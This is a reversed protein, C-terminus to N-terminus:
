YRKLQKLLKRASRTNLIDKKEIWGRRAIDIGFQMNKFHNVSHSDTSIVLKVGMDKAMRVHIDDLDMREPQANIELACGNNKAAEMIKELDIEYPDRRGILRATPHAFINFYPNSMARLIRETQKKRSLDFKYHVSCVTLDLEKLIDDPLDLSGDELIDVEISKLIRFNKLKENLKDVAKIQQSLRKKDFGKAVTLHKSHDTIAIYEYGFEQAAKVMNDLSHQGDTAKTHCHLDGRVDNLTILKPLKDELAAEIEGRNERLEPEIYPLGVTAYVEKENKGAIRKAGKFVGYENIKLKKKVAMKRITITHSKSGTFYHLAAGYSVNPVVRLDVQIGCRLFVTSRTTGQSAIHVVEEYKVFHDIIPAGKQSVALIDLDGLTEKRRRFSGAVIVKKVGPIKKLFKVLSVAYPEADALHTRQKGADMRKIGNLILMETKKGFGELKAIKGHNLAQKLDNLNKIHLKDHLTKVRKPGLGEIMLLDILAEPAHKELTTLQPLKGTKVITEIKEALADGIGPFETLDEGEEVLDSINQPLDNIFRAATRYARIRFPNEGEIELLDALKNLLAAIENNHIPM